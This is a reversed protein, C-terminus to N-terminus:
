RGHAIRTAPHIRKRVKDAGHDHVQKRQHLSDIKHVIYNAYNSLWVGEMLGRVVALPFEQKSLVRGWAIEIPRLTQSASDTIPASQVLPWVDLARSAAIPCAIDTVSVKDWGRFRVFLTMYKWNMLVLKQTRKTDTYAAVINQNGLVSDTENM